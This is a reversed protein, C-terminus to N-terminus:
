RLLRASRLILHNAWCVRAPLGEPSFLRPGHKHNSASHIEDVVGARAGNQRLPSPHRTHKQWTGFSLDAHFDLTLPTTISYLLCFNLSTAWCTMGHKPGSSVAVCDNSSLLRGILPARLCFWLCHVCGLPDVCRPGVIVFPVAFLVNVAM